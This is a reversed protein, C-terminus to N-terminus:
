VSREKPDNFFVPVDNVPPCVSLELDVSEERHCEAHEPKKNCQHIGNSGDFVLGNSCIHLKPKDHFCLIYQQCSKPVSFLQYQKTPGCKFCVRNAQDNLVCLETEADFVYGSNCVGPSAAGNECYFYKECAGLDRAFGDKRGHCPNGLEGNLYLEATGNSNEIAASRVVVLIEIAFIFFIIQRSLM